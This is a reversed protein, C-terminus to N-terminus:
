PAAVEGVILPIGVAPPLTSATLTDTDLTPEAGGSAAAHRASM